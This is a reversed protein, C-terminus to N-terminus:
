TKDEGWYRSPQRGGERGEAWRRERMEINLGESRKERM